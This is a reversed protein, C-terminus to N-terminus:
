EISEIENIILNRRENFIDKVDQIFKVALAELKPVDDDHGRFYIPVSIGTKGKAHIIVNDVKVCIELKENVYHLDRALSQLKDINESRMIIYNIAFIVKKDCTKVGSWSFM